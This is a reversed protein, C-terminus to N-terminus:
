IKRSTSLQDTEMSVLSATSPKSEGNFLINREISVKKTDPELWYVCHGDSQVSYGIWRASKAPPQLKDGQKIKVYVERGGAYVNHLNPKQHHIMKYHMKDPLARTHMCNKMYNTHLITCGWLTKPLSSELLMACARKVLTHNLCETVDNLEPTDHVMLCHKTGQKALYSEFERSTYEGGQDSVLSKIHVNRQHLMM